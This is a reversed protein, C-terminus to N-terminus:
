RNKRAPINLLIGVAVKSYDISLKLQKEINM